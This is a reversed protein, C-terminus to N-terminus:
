VMDCVSIVRLATYRLNLMTLPGIESLLSHKRVNRIQIRWSKQRINAFILSMLHRKAVILLM